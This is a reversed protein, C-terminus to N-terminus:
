KTAPPPTPLAPASPVKQTEAQAEALGKRRLGTMCLGDEGQMCCEAALAIVQLHNGNLLNEKYNKAMAILVQRDDESMNGGASCSPRQWCRQEHSPQGAVEACMKQPFWPEQCLVNEIEDRKDCSQGQNLCDQYLTLTRRALKIANEREVELEVPPTFTYTWKSQNKTGPEVTFQVSDLQTHQESSLPNISAKKQSWNVSYPVAVATPNKSNTKNLQTQIRASGSSSDKSECLVGKLNQGSTLPLGLKAIIDALYSGNHFEKGTKESAFTWIGAAMGSGVAGIWLGLLLPHMAEARPLLWDTWLHTTTTQPFNKELYHTLHRLSVFDEGKLNKGNVIISGQNASSLDIRVKRQPSAFDLGLQRRTIQLPLPAELTWNRSLETLFQHDSVLLLREKLANVLHGLTPQSMLALSKDIQSRIRNHSKQPTLSHAPELGQGSVPTPYYAGVLLFFCFTVGCRFFTTPM